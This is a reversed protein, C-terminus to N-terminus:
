FKSVTFCVVRIVTVKMVQKMNILMSRTVVPFVNKLCVTACFVYFVYEEFKIKMEKKTILRSIM